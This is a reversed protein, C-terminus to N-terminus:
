LGRGRVVAIGETGSDMLKKLSKDTGFPLTMVPGIMCGSAHREDQFSRSVVGRIIAGQAGFIPAGSMKGPIRARFDFSPGPTSSDRKIHNDPHLETVEGFSVFLEPDFEGFRLVGNTTEVAIDKMEAYGVAFAGEGMEFPFLSLGLAQYASGDTRVPLKCIAVDTLRNLRHPEHLLPSEEWQGWYWGEEFPVIHFGRTGTAPNVPIAVGMLLDPQIDANGERVKPKAYGSEQPDLLVHSATVVYGSASVVFSTGICRVSDAGLPWAVVPLISQKLLHDTSGFSAFFDGLNKPPTPTMLELDSEFAFFDPSFGKKPKLQIGKVGCISWRGDPLRSWLPKLISIGSTGSM